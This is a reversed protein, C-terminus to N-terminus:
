LPRWPQPKFDLMIGLIEFPYISNNSINLNFFTGRTGTPMYYNSRVVNDNTNLNINYSGSGSNGGNAKWASTIAASGQGKRAVLSISNWINEIFPNGGSFNKSQWYSNIAAGEDSTPGFGERINSYKYVKNTSASGFYFINNFVTPANMPIDFKHWTQHLLDYKFTLNNTTGTSSGAWYLANNWYIGYSPPATSGEVWNIVLQDMRASSTGSALSYVIKAKYAAAIPRVIVSGTSANFYNGTDSCSTGTSDQVTFGSGYSFSGAIELNGWATANGGPQMCPTIYTGTSAAILAIEQMSPTLTAIQTNYDARYQWFERNLNIRLTDSASVFSSWNDNAGSSTSNKVYFAINGLSSNLTFTSSLIGSVPSGFTTDFIRSTFQGTTKYGYARINSINAGDTNTRVYTYASSSFHTSWGTCQLTSDSWLEFYGATSKYVKWARQQSPTSLGTGGNCVVQEGGNCSYLRGNLTSNNSDNYLNVVYGGTCYTPSMTMFNYSLFASAGNIGANFTWVGSSVASNAYADFGGAGSSNITGNTGNCKPSSLVNTWTNDLSGTQCNESFTNSSLLLSGVTDTFSMNTSTGGSFDTSSTDILANTSPEVSGVDISSSLPATSSAALLNGADWDAKSTLIIYRSKGTLLTATASSISVSIKKIGGPSGDIAYFENDSGKFYALGDRIIIDEPQSVGILGSIDYYTSNYQDTLNFGGISYEKFTIVRGNLFKVAILKDGANGLTETWPDVINVGTTYDTFSASKSIFLTNPQDTTGTILQRDKTFTSTKGRPYSTATRFTLTIGDYTFPLDNASSFCYAVGQNDACSLRSGSTMTAIIISPSGSNVVSYMSTGSTLLLIENGNQNKFGFASNISTTTNPLQIFLAYGDRKKIGTGTKNIEMNLSDPSACTEIVSPDVSNNIGCFQNILISECNAIGAFLTLILAIIAM